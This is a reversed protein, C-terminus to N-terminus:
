SLVALVPKTALIFIMALGRRRAEDIYGLVKNTEHVSLASAPEDLIVLKGGFYMTRGIVIAQREGGSLMSGEDDALRVSIGIDRLAEETVRRMKDCNSTSGSSAGSALTM